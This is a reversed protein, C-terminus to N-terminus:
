GFPWIMRDQGNWDVRLRGAQMGLNGLAPEMPNRAVAVHDLLCGCILDHQRDAFYRM